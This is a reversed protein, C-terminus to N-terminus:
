PRVAFAKADFASSPRPVSRYTGPFRTCTSYGPIDSHPFGVPTSVRNSNDSCMPYCLSRPSSFCRLLRLFLFSERLLPSRVPFLGFRLRFSQPTTPGPVIHTIFEDSLLVKRSLKAMSPSLGTHSIPHVRALYRLVAPCALGAPIRSAWKGLSFVNSSRYHVLVTLSLHFTGQHLSHFLVQFRASVVPRLVISRRTLTHRRAKQLILRRTLKLPLTLGSVPPAAAFALRFLANSDSSNSVFGLSSGM